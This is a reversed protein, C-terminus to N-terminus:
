NDKSPKTTKSSIEYTVKAPNSKITEKEGEKESCFDFHQEPSLTAAANPTFLVYKQIKGHKGGWINGAPIIIFWFFLFSNKMDSSVRIDYFWNQLMDWPPIYAKKALFILLRVISLGSGPKVVLDVLVTQFGRFKWCKALMQAPSFDARLPLLSTNNQNCKTTVLTKSTATFSFEKTQVKSQLKSNEQTFSKFTFFIYKTSEEWPVAHLLCTLLASPACERPMLCNYILFSALFHKGSAILILYVM